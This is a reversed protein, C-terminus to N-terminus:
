SEGSRFYVTDLAQYIVYGLLMGSIALAALIPHDPGYEFGEKKAKALDEPHYISSKCFLLCAFFMGSVALFIHLGYTFATLEHGEIQTSSVGFISAAAMMGLAFVNIPTRAKVVARWAGKENSSAESDRDEGPCGCHPCAPARSSIERDCDPCNILPM